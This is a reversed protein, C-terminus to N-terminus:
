INVYKGKRSELYLNKISSHKDPIWIFDYIILNNKNEQFFWDNSDTNISYNRSIGNSFSILVRDSQDNWVAKQFIENEVRFTNVLIRNLVKM